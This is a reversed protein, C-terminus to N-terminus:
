LRGAAHGPRFQVVEIWNYTSCGDCNGGAHINECHAQGSQHIGHGPTAKYVVHKMSAIPEPTVHSPWRTTFGTIDGHRDVDARVHVHGIGPLDLSGLEHAGSTLEYDVYIPYHHQEHGDVMVPKSKDSGAM